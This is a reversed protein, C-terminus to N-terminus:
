QDRSGYFPLVPAHSSRNWWPGRLQGRCTSSDSWVPGLPVDDSSPRSAHLSVCLGLVFWSSVYVDCLGPGRHCPSKSSILSFAPVISFAENRVTLRTSVAEIVGDTILIDALTKGNDNVVTGGQLWISKAVPQVLCNLGANSLTLCTVKILIHSALVHPAIFSLLWCIALMRNFLDSM